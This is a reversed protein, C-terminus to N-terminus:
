AAGMDELRSLVHNRVRTLQLERIAFCLLSRREADVKLSRQWNRAATFVFGSLEAHVEELVRDIQAQEPDM